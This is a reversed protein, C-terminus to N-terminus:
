DFIYTWCTYCVELLSQVHARCREYAASLDRALTHRGHINLEPRGAAL